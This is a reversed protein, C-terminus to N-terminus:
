VMSRLAALLKAQKDAMLPHRRASRWAQRAILGVLMVFGSIMATLLAILGKRPASPEVPLSPPQQVVERSVGQLAGSLNAVDDLHRKQIEDTIDLLAAMEKSNGSGGGNLMLRNRFQKLTTLSEQAHALKMQAEDRKLGTPASHKFWAEIVANALTQSLTPSPSTVDLRLLGEKGTTVKIRDKLWNRASNGRLEDINASQLAVVAQDLVVPSAMLSAAQAYTMLPMNGTTDLVVQSVYSRPLLYSVGYALVGAVVPVIVLLRLNEALFVLVDLVGLESKGADM